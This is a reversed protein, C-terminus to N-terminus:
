TPEVRMPNPFNVALLRAVKNTRNIWNHPADSRLQISDGPYLTRQTDAQYVTVIGELVYLFEEGAHSYIEAEAASANAFPMLVFLRPLLDYAATNNSLIFQLIQPSIYTPTLDFSRVVPDADAPPTDEFFDSLGIGFISTIKALSDIAISSMGRELQSLFGVSLGTEESLQKLTYKRSTRLAKIKAGISYNDSM